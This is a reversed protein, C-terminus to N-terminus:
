PGFVCKLKNFDDRSISHNKSNLTKSWFISKGQYWGGRLCMQESVAGRPPIADSAQPLVAGRFVRGKLAGLIQWFPEEPQGRGASAARAPTWAGCSGSQRADVSQLLARAVMGAGCSCSQRTDVCRLLLNEGTWGGGLRLSVYFRYRRLM